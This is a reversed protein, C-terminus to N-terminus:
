RDPLPHVAGMALDLLEGVSRGGDRAVWELRSYEFCSVAAAALAGARLRQDDSPTTASRSTLAATLLENWQAQKRLHGGYLVPTDYILRMTPLSRGPDDLMEIVEDFSRRLALWPDEHSPRAELRHAIASGTDDIMQTFVAEKGTFYRFFSRPSLGAASAIQDVTVAEYGDRLFLDIAVEMVETRVVQRKRDRLSLERREM